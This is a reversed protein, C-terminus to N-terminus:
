NLEGVRLVSPAYTQFAQAPIIEMQTTKGWSCNHNVQCFNLAAVRTMKILHM